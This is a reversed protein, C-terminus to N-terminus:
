SLSRRIRRHIQRNRPGYMFGLPRLPSPSPSPSPPALVPALAPALAPAVSSPLPPSPPRCRPGLPAAAAYDHGKSGISTTRGIDRMICAWGERMAVDEEEEENM